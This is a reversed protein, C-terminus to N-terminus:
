DQLSDQNFHKRLMLLKNFLLTTADVGRNFCIQQINKWEKKNSSNVQLEPNQSFDATDKFLDVLTTFNITKPQYEQKFEALHLNAGFKEGREFERHIRYKLFKGIFNNAKTHLPVTVDQLYHIAYGAHQLFHTEKKCFIAAEFHDKFMQLANNKEINLGYSKNKSNPFYFHTNCHFGLEQKCFDPMQSYRGVQRKQSPLINCDKLALMTMELHTKRNWKFNPQSTTPNIQM